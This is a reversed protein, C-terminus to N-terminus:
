LNMIKVTKMDSLLERMQIHNQTEGRLIADVSKAVNLHIKWVNSNNGMEVCIGFAPEEQRELRTKQSVGLDSAERASLTVVHVNGLLRQLHPSHVLDSLHRAHCTVMFQVGRHCMQALHQCEDYSSGIEDVILVQPSHNAIAEMMLDVYNRHNQITQQMKRARGVCAHPIIGNGAIEGSQDVLMVRRDRSAHRAVDRLMTTKGSAPPGLFIINKGSSILDSIVEAVGTIIRAVRLTLGVVTNGNNKLICCRHLSQSICCRRSNNNNNDCHRLVFEIDRSQILCEDVVVSNIGGNENSIYNNNNHNLSICLPRGLDMVVDLVNNQACEVIHQRIHAPFCNLFVDFESHMEVHVSKIEVVDEDDQRGRKFLENRRPNSPYLNSHHDSEDSESESRGRKLTVVRRIVEVEEEGEEETPAVSIKMAFGDCRKGQLERLAKNMDEKSSFGIHGCGLSLGDKKRRRIRAETPNYPKFVKMLRSEDSHYSLNSVFLTGITAKKPQIKSNKKGKKKLIPAKRMKYMGNREIFMGQFSLLFDRLTGHKAKVGQYHSSCTNKLDLELNQISVSENDNDNFIEQLRLLVRKREKRESGLSFM